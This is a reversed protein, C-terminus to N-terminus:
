RLNSVVANPFKYLISLIHGSSSGIAIFLVLVVIISLSKFMVSYYNEKRLEPVM